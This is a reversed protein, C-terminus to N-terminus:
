FLRLLLWFCLTIQLSKIGQMSGAALFNSWFFLVNRSRTQCQYCNDIEYTNIKLSSSAIFCSAPVQNTRNARITCFLKTQIESKQLSLMPVQWGLCLGNRTEKLKDLFGFKCHSVFAACIWHSKVIIDCWVLKWDKQTWHLM